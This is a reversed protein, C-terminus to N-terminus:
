ARKLVGLRPILMPTKRKYDAYTDGFERLLRREEFSVGVLIYITAGIYVAISNVSMSPSLWIFMLGATYLPHRVVRYLGRSVFVGTSKKEGLLQRLGSLSLWDAQLFAVLLMSVALVQGGFMLYRWPAPVAYIERDPLATMLYLVFLFGVGAFMNYALRYFNVGGIKLPFLDKALHSALFSHLLGWVALAALLIVISM